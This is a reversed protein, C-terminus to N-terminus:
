SNGKRWEGKRAKKEGNLVRERLATLQSYNACFYETDESAHELRGAKM